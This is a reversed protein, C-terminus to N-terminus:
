LINFMSGKQTNGKCIGSGSGISWLGYVMAKNSLVPFTFSKAISDFPTPFSGFACFLFSFISKLSFGM